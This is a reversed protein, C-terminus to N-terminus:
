IFKLQNAAAVGRIHAAAAAYDEATPLHEVMLPVNGPLKDLERLYTAFDLHGLGPRAEDLHLTLKPQLIIDKAHCSKIWPGLTAFCERLFAGNEYFMKPSIIMNVPDLHVAFQKRDIAKILDLYSDISDPPAWPMPELTYFTRTPKVADIITRVSQVIMDFVEPTYHSADPGDWKPGRSGAINVCCLAGLQDALHLQTQSYETAKRRETEDISLPNKWVGVEAIVFNAKAAADRYARIVDPATDAGVPSYAATYGLRKLAAIWGQPDQYKEYVPGGLRM